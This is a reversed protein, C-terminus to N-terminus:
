EFGNQRAYSAAQHRNEVGLKELINHIHHKVTNETIFLSTAIECNSAGNIVERLVDVERPSLKEFGSTKRRDGQTTHSFEEMLRATMAKSLASKGEEVALLQEVLKKSSVNKLLYGKAGARIASFMIEDAEYITLFVIKCEAQESLIQETASTGDGDPLGWDMLIMDPKLLRAQEIAERVSGAEGIVEFEPTARLIGVLGERFLVHDDVILIRMM